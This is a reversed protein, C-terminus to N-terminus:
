RLSSWLLMAAYGRWPRWAEARSLLDDGSTGVGAAKRLGLDNHPFADPQGLTRMAIYGATWPGIGPLAILKEITEELPSGPQLLLQGNAVARALGRIAGARSAPMGEIDADALVQPRPFLLTFSPGAGTIREGHREAIRGMITSAGKVSVQQGVIARVSLEFPDWAGPIRMGPNADILPALLPDRRLHQSIVDPEADLDFLVRARDTIADMSSKFSSPAALLLHSSTTVYRVKIVGHDDGVRITRSYSDRDVFEVGPTARAALFSILSNWAFPRRYELELERNM